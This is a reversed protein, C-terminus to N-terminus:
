GKLCNEMLQMVAYKLLINRMERLKVYLLVSIGYFNVLLFFEVYNNQNFNTPFFSKDSNINRPHKEESEKGNTEIWETETNRILQRDFLKFNVM